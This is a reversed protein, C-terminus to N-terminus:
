ISSRCSACSWFLLAAIVLVFLGAVIVLFGIQERWDALATAVTTTAMIVIPFNTLTRAAILRDHGDIPSALRASGHEKDFLLRQHAPGTKFNRGILRRSMLIVHWCRVTAITCPFRRTQGLAVSAFFKAFSAPEIGRGIVGLFEGNPGTLKRALM